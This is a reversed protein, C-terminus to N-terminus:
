KKFFKETKYKLLNVGSSTKLSLYSRETYNINKTIKNEERVWFTLIFNGNLLMKDNQKWMQM